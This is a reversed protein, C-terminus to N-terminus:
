LNPARMKRMKVQLLFYVLPLKNIMIFGVRFNLYLQNKAISNIRNFWLRCSNKIQNSQKLCVVNM